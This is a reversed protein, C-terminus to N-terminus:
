DLDIQLPDVRGFSRVLGAERERFIQESDIIIEFPYNEFHKSESICVSFKTRLDAKGKKM